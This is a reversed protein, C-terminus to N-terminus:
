MEIIKLLVIPGGEDLGELYEKRRAKVGIDQVFEERKERTSCSSGM